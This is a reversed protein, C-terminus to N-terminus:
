YIPPGKSITLYLWLKGPGLWYSTPEVKVLFPADIFGLNASKLKFYIFSTSIFNIIISELVQRMNLGMM